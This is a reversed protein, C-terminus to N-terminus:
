ATEVMRRLAKEERKWNWYRGSHGAAAHTASLLSTVIEDDTAQGQAVLSASCSLQTQHIGSDGNGMYVMAALRQEVDIPAKFGYRAAFEAFPDFPESPDNPEDPVVPRKLLPRQIDLMDVIDSLEYRM